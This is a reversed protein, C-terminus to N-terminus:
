DLERKHLVNGADDMHYVNHSPNKKAHEKYAAQAQKYTSHESEHSVSGGPTYAHIHHSGASELIGAAKMFRGTDFKKNAKLHKAAIEHALKHVDAHRQTDGHPISAKHAKLMAADAIFDKRSVAEGIVKIRADILAAEKIGHKKLYKDASSKGTRPTKNNNALRDLHKSREEKSEDVKDEDDEASDEDGKPDEDKINDPDAAETKTKEKSTDVMKDEGDKDSLEDNQKDEEDDEFLGGMSEALQVKKTALSELVKDALATRLQKEAELLNKSQINSIFSKDM